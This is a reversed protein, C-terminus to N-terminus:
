SLLNCLEALQSVELTSFDRAKAFLRLAQAHRCRTAESGASIYFHEVDGPLNDTGYSHRRLAGTSDKQHAEAIEQARLLIPASVGAARACSLAYTSTAM